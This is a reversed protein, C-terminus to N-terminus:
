LCELITQLKSNTEQYEKQCDSQEVIGCGAYVHIRNKEILASRIGV